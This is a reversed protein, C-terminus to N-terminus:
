VLYRFGKKMRLAEDPSDMHEVDATHAAVDPQTDWAQEGDELKKNLNQLIRRFWLSGLITIGFMATVIGYSKRFGNEKLVIPHAPSCFTLRGTESRSKRKGPPCRIYPFLPTHNSKGWVYSGAVNGLQSFANILAIAM